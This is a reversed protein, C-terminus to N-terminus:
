EPGELAQKALPFDDRIASMAEEIVREFWEVDMGDIIVGGPELIDDSDIVCAGEAMNTAEGKGKEHLKKYYGPAFKM